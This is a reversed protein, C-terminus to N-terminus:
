QEVRQTTNCATNGTYCYTINKKNCYTTYYSSRTKKKSLNHASCHVSAKYTNKNASFHFFNSDFCFFSNNFVFFFFRCLFFLYIYTIYESISFLNHYNGTITHCKTLRLTNYLGKCILKFCVSCLNLICDMRNCSSHGSMHVNKKALNINWIILKIFHIRYIVFEFFTICRNDYTCIVNYIRCCICCLACWNISHRHKICSICFM